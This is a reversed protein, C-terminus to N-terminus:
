QKDSDVINMSKFYENYCKDCTIHKIEVLQDSTELKYYNTNIYAVEYCNPCYIEM